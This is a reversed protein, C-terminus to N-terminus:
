QSPDAYVIRNELRPIGPLDPVPRAPTHKQLTPPIRHGFEFRTPENRPYPPNAISIDHLFVPPTTAPVLPRNWDVASGTNQSACATFVLALSALLSLSRLTM